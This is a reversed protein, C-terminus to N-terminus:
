VIEIKEFYLGQFGKEKYIDVFRQNVFIPSFSQKVKFILLEEFDTDHLVAKRLYGKDKIPDFMLIKSKEVNLIDYRITPRFFYIDEENESQVKFFVGYPLLEQHFCDFANAKMLFYNSNEFNPFETKLKKHKNDVASFGYNQKGTFSFIENEKLERLRFYDQDNKLFLIEYNDLHKLQYINM